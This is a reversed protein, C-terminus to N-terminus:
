LELEFWVTKGRDEPVVGWALSLAEVLELGRGGEADVSARRGDGGVPMGPGDDSVSVRVRRGTVAATVRANREAHMVANTVLESILLEVIEIATTDATATATAELAARLDRRAAGPSAVDTSYTADLVHQVTDLVAALSHLQAPFLHIDDTKEVYGIAGREISPGQMEEAPYASLMVIRTSPSLDHLRPLTSMGDLMPMGIDLVVLDPRVEAVVDLAELGTSAEGVVTFRGDRHLLTRLLDRMEEVDDVLVTRLPTM